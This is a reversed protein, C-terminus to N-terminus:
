NAYGYGYKGYSDAELGYTAQNLLLNVAKSEDISELADLVAHQPTIGACVVLVIQGMLGALVRAESTALLPPSDFVVVCDPLRTSLSSVLQEMRKSAFLETAHEDRHGAPLLSLGPVDTPLTVEDIDLNEDTLLDCLGLEQDINFLQSIHPKAVDADVLLVSTDKETAISLALNICNFTKGDGALASAVMILNADESPHASRGAANDLLPRKILRYQNAMYHEQDEPAFLGADRLLQRDVILRRTIKARPSKKIGNREHVIKAIPERTQRNRIGISEPNDQAYAQIKRLADTIKSM